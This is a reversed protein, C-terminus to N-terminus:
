KGIQLVQFNDDDYNLYKQITGITFSHGQLAKVVTLLVQDITEDVDEEIITRQIKDENIGYRDELAVLVKM